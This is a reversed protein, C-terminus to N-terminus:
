SCRVIVRGKISHHYFLCAQHIENPLKVQEWGTWTCLMEHRIDAACVSYISKRTGVVTDRLQNSPNGEISWVLVCQSSFLIVSM